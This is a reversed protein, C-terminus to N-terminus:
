QEIIKLTAHCIRQTLSLRIKLNRNTAFQLLKWKVENIKQGETTRRAIM